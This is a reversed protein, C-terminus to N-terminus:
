QPDEILIPVVSGAITLAVPQGALRALDTLRHPLDIRQREMGDNEVIVITGDQLAIVLAPADTSEGIPVPSGALPSSTPMQWRKEFSAADLAVLTGDKTRVFVLSGVVWPGGQISEPFLHQKTPRLGAPDRTELRNDVAVLINGEFAALKHLRKGSLRASAIEALHPRPEDRRRLVRLTGDATLAAFTEENLPVLSRWAPASEQDDAVPLLFPDVPNNQSDPLWALRGPLPLVLGGPLAIPATQPAASLKEPPATSRTPNIRWLLPSEGGRWVLAEHNSLSVGLLPAVSREDWDPLLTTKLFSSEALVKDSIIGVQGAETVLTLEDETAAQAIISAGLVTRWSGTMSDRQAQSVYVAKSNPLTRAVFLGEGSEQVPQRHRGPALEDPLITLDEAVLKLKRLASGAAWLLGDPGPVLYTLVNQPKTVQVGALRTLPPQGPDDSVSFATIRERSSPVFLINGRPMPPVRITGEVRGTAITSLRATTPDFALARITASKLRDNEYILILNGLRQPATGLSGLPHGIFSVGRVEFTRFDLAYATSQEGFVILHEGDATIIPSGVLPQPFAIATLPEGTELALRVLHGDTTVLDIQGQAVRPPGSAHQGIHTRWIPEGTERSLLLLDLRAADFALLAPIAADVEIPFFPTDPGVTTRWLPKGTVVDLGVIQDRALAIVLRGDSKEGVRAQTHGILMVARDGNQAAQAVPLSEAIPKALPQILGRETDLAQTLLEAIPRDDRFDPYRALLDNRAQYAAVFDNKALATEIQAAISEFYEHKRVASEADAFEADLRAKTKEAAPGDGAFRTFLKGAREAPELFAPEGSRIGAASAGAAIQRAINALDPALADFDPHDRNDRVFDSFAQLAREFDPSAGHIHREIRAMGLAGRAEPVRSDNPHELLFTEFDRIAQTYLGSQRNGVAQEYLRNASERGMLMWIAGAALLLCLGFGGLGLVLPSSLVDQEGPRKRSRLRKWRPPNRSPSTSERESKEPPLPIDDLLEPEASFEESAPPAAAEEDIKDDDRPTSRHPVAEAFEIPKEDQDGDSLAEWDDAALEETQQNAIVEDDFEDEELAPAAIPAALEASSNAVIAERRKRRKGGSKLILIDADGVRILDGTSLGKRKVLVGNVDVGEQATAAIEFGQGNWHVRCHIPAVSEDDVHIDSIPNRGIVIPNRRSLRRTESRGDAFNIEIKPM